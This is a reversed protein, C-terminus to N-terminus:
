RPVTSAILGPGGARAHWVGGVRWSWRTSGIAAVRGGRVLVASLDGPPVEEPVWAATLSAVAISAVFNENMSAIWFRRKSADVYRAPFPLVIRLREHGDQELWRLRKGSEELVFWARQARNWLVGEIGAGPPAILRAVRPDIAEGELLYLAGDTQAVLLAGRADSAIALLSPWAALEEVQLVDDADAARVRALRSEGVLVVASARPGPVVARIPHDHMVTVTPLPLRGRGRGRTVGRSLLDGEAGHAFWVGRERDAALARLGVLGEWLVTTEGRQGSWQMLTGATPDGLFIWTSALVCECVWGLM